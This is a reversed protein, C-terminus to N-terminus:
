KPAVLGFPVGEPDNAFFVREGGPVEMPDHHPTGGLAKVKAHAMEIDEVRFYFNWQLPSEPTYRNMVAGFPEDDAATSVFSYDGTPGMPIAGQKRWGFQAGYFALAASDDSTSLDNWSVHGMARRGYATSAEDSAGRMVYFHVGQPDSVMALRGVGEIDHPPLHIAGGAKAIGAAAADVDDVGIYGLWGPRAGGALMDANLTLIGGAFGGAAQIMRYDVPGPPCVADIDWGTIADYFAKAAKPDATMLEYWIWSGHPNRM